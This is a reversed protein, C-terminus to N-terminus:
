AKKGATYLVGADLWIGKDAKLAAIEALHEGRYREQDEPSLQTVFRRFGANWVIEWWEYEDKLFYGVNKAEVRVQKLGAKDFLQRCGEETAVRKWAEPPKQVGYTGIRNFLMDRLPQFYQEQFSTILVTGGPRVMSAIHALQADMDQVFFIGFACVAADFTGPQFGLEQMDREIFQINRINFAAAKKRAQDLMGPSLDVATIRGKTLKPAIALTAHGTGCAVDLVHEDGKLGLLMAMNKASKPFFRLANGDYGSAV